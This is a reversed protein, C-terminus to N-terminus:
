ARWRPAPGADTPSRSAANEAAWNAPAGISPLSDSRTPRLGKSMAESTPVATALRRVPKAPESHSNSTARTRSPAEPPAHGHGLRRGGVQDPRGVAGPHEPKEAGGVAHPEDDAGGDASQGRETPGAEREEDGGGDGPDIRDDGDPSQGLGPDTCARGGGPRISGRGAGTSGTRSTSPVIATGATTVTRRTADNLAKSAVKAKNPCRRRPKPSAVM